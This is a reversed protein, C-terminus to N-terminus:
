DLGLFAAGDDAGFLDDVGGAVAVDAGAGAHGVGLAALVVAAHLGHGHDEFHDAHVGVAGLGEALGVPVEGFEPGGGLGGAFDGDRAFVHEGAGVGAGAFPIEVGGADDALFIPLACTQV